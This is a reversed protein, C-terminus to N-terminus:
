APDAERADGEAIAAMVGRDGAIPEDRKMLEALPKSIRQDLRKLFSSQSHNPEVPQCPEGFVAIASQRDLGADDFSAVRDEHMPLARVELDHLMRQDLM